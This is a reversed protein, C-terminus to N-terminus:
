HQDKERPTGPVQSPSSFRVQASVRNELSACAPWGPSWGWGWAQGQCDRLGATDVPTKGPKLQSM